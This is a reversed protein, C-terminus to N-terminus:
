DDGARSLLRTLERRHWAAAAPGEAPGQYRGLAEALLFFGPRPLGTKGIVLAALLPQGRAADERMLDELLEAVQRIQGPPQLGLHQAVERYLLPQGTVAQARLLRRLRTGASDHM